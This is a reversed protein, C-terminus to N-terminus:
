NCSREPDATVEAAPALAVLVIEMEDTRIDDPRVNIAM